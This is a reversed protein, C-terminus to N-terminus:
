ARSNRVIRRRENEKVARAATPIENAAPHADAGLEAGCICFMGAAGSETAPLEPISSAFFHPGVVPPMLTSGHATTKLVAFDVCTVTLPGGLASSNATAALGHLPM